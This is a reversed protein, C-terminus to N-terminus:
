LPIKIPRRLLTATRPGRAGGALGRGLAAAGGPLGQVGGRRQRGRLRARRRVAQARAPMPGPARRPREPVQLPGPPPDHVACHPHATFVLTLSIFWTEIIVQRM